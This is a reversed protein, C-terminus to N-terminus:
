RAGQRAIRPKSTKLKTRVDPNSKIEDFTLTTGELIADRKTLRQWREIAVDVYGPDLEIGYARRGIQEAAVLTTGSGLFADLVISGRRSCDKMADVVLPTPKVTPHMQLEDMRGARFSNVGAYPWVNTRTRGHQGLEFTNLHEATGHKFVFVFEHQSRYFSGQGANTKVWVCVNKLETYVADGAALLESCHRWDMCVYHISGDASYEACNGLTQELFVKFQPSSLEGSAAAFERHKTRGRGGVHGGIRVNYPPDNFVMFAQEGKMLIAFTEPQRADGCMIRHDAATWVDDPRTVPRLPVAPIDAAATPASDEFDLALADIENAEFGTLELEMGEEPMSTALEAMEPWLIAKDWGANQALKNDAIVYARKEVESLHNVRLTPVVKLKLLKAAEVRGHGALIVGDSDVLVPITFGFRDISKAIQAIQKKPHTRANRASHRLAYPSKLEIEGAYKIQSGTLLTSLNAKIMNM